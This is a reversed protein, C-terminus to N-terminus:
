IMDLIPTHDYGKQKATYAHTIRGRYCSVGARLAANRRIAEHVGHEAMDLVYPFTAATLIDTATRGVMSPIHDSNYHIVGHERYFHDLEEFPYATEILDRINATADCVVSDPRMTRIMDATILHDLRAPPLDARRLASNIVIDFSPLLRALEDRSAYPHESDFRLTRIGLRALHDGALGFRRNIRENLTEPHKDLVTIDANIDMFYKLATSGITGIGILLVKAGPLGNEHRGCLVGKYRTCLEVARQAFLYGTLRSMPELLVLHGDKEVWEYAIGLFGSKILRDITERPTNGDFHLYTFLTQDAGYDGIEPEIPEKIKLVLEAKRLLTKKDSIMAGAAKFEDDRYGSRNGAGSQVHVTHGRESLMRVQGPVLAVRNEDKKIEKLVGIIM